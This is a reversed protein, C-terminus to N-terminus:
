GSRRATRPQIPRLWSPKDSDSAPSGPTRRESRGAGGSGARTKGTATGRGAVGISGDWPSRTHEALYKALAEEPVRVARGVNVRMMDPLLRYVTRRSVGLREAVQEITLLTM